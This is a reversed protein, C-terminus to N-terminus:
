QEKLRFGDELGDGRLEIDNKIETSAPFYEYGIQDGYMPAYITVGDVEYTYIEEAPYVEYTEQWVYYPLLMCSAMYNGCVLLKYAGYILIAIHVVRAFKFNEIILGATIAAVLLIYAYGYRVMPASFQWYLYSCTLTLLVLFTDKSRWKKKVLIWLGYCITFICGFIDALVLLKETATLQTVFWNGFWETIPLDVYGIAYLGRAWTKVQDADAQIYAVKTMKWDFSFLDLAPFPYFLWGSIVVTRILWPAAVIIGMSLYLLIDRWKKQKLLLYAPKLLLILILGATVKASLAYVGCVCLLSYPVLEDQEKDKEVQRLWKIIIYFVMSMSLYDSSPSIIENCLTTLYYILGISAYDSLLLKKRKFGKAVDLVTVSMLFAVYGTMCHMSRGLLFKMSYLATLCFVSSNYAFREHLNGLGKVVGYEEIWRISQGHYLNTDYVMYGRSSFYSWVFFLIVIVVKRITTTEHLATKVYFFLSKRMVIAIVLCVALMIVNALLGVKHFLSFFQAYVTVSILGATLISDVRKMKYKFVKEVFQAFAFGICFTTFVVYIWNLVITLM